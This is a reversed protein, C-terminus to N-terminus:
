AALRQAVDTTKGFAILSRQRVQGDTDVVLRVRYGPRLFTLRYLGDDADIGRECVSKIEGIRMGAPVSAPDLGLGDAILAADVYIGDTGFEVAPTRLIPM